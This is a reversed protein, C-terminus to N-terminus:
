RRVWDPGSKTDRRVLAAWHRRPQNVGAAPPVVVPPWATPTSESWVLKRVPV